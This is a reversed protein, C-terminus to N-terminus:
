AAFAGCYEDWETSTIQPTINLTQALTPDGGSGAFKKTATIKITTSFLAVEIEISITATGVVKNSAGGGDEYRMELYLEICV